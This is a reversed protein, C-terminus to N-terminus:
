LTDEAVAESALSMEDELRFRTLIKDWVVENIEAGTVEIVKSAMYAGMWACKELAYGKLYGHLFGASFFDGAGTSDKITAKISPFYFQKKGKKIWGGGAGMNVISFDCIKALYSCADMPSMGSSIAKAEEQNAFVIDVYNELIYLFKKRHKEVIQFNGLNMSIVARKEKAILMASKLLDFDLIEYGEVHFLLVNELHFPQVSITFPSYSAGPYVLMTREGDPTIM